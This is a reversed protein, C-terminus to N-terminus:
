VVGHALPRLFVSALGLQDALGPLIAAIHLPVAFQVIVEDILALDSARVPNRAQGFQSTDPCLDAVLAPRSIVPSLRRQDDIIRQRRRIEDLREFMTRINDNM